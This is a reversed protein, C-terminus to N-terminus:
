AKTVIIEDNVVKVVLKQLPKPPPGAVNTGTGADYTGGHCACLINKEAADYQVTCGLHTCVANYAVFDGSAERIVLGPQSGFQFNKSTGEKFDAVKGLSVSSVAGSDSSDSKSGLYRLIPSAAIGAWLVGALVGVGVLFKKLFSRRSCCNGCPKSPTQTTTDKNTM